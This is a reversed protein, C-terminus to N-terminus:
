AGRTEIQQRPDYHRGIDSTLNKPLDLLNLAIENAVGSYTALFDALDMLERKKIRDRTETELVHQIAEVATDFKVPDQISRVLNGSRLDETTRGVVYQHDDADLYWNKYLKVM